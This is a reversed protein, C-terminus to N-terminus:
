AARGKAREWARALARRTLAGAVERRYDASAHLDGDPELGESVVRAAEAFLAADGGRGVLLTEAADARLPTSAVGAFALRARTCTGTADLTAVAAVAV